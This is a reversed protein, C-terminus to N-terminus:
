DVTVTGGDLIFTMSELVEKLHKVTAGTVHGNNITISTIFSPDTLSDHTADKLTGSQYANHSVTAVGNDETVNIDTGGVVETIGVDQDTETGTEVGTVHGFEDFTLGAIYTRDQKTVNEVDSTNGHSFENGNLALGDGATYVNFLDSINVYTVTDADDLEPTNWTIKLFKGATGKDDADAYEVSKIM